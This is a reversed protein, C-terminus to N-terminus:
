PNRGLEGAGLERGIPNATISPTGAICAARKQHRGARSRAHSPPQHRWETGPRARPYHHLNFHVGQRSSFPGDSSAIKTRGRGPERLRTAGGGGPLWQSLHLVGGNSEVSLRTKCHQCFILAAKLYYTNPEESLRLLPALPRWCDRGSNSSATSKIEVSASHESIAQEPVDTLHQNQATTRVGLSRESVMHKQHASNELLLM